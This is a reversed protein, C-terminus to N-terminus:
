RFLASKQGLLHTGHLSPEQDIPFKMFNEKFNVCALPVTGYLYREPKEEPGAGKEGQRAEWNAPQGKFWEIPCSSEM